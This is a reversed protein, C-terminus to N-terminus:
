VFGHWLNNYDHPHFYLSPAIQEVLPENYMKPAPALKIYSTARSHGEWCLLSSKCLCLFKLPPSGPWFELHNWEARNCFTLLAHNSIYNSLYVSLLHHRISCVLIHRNYTVAVGQHVWKLPDGHCYHPKLQSTAMIYSKIIALEM